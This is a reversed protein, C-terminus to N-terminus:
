EGYVKTQQFPVIFLKTIIEVAGITEIQGNEAAKKISTDSNQFVRSKAIGEKTGLAQGTVQISRSVTCSTLMALVGLFMLSKKM